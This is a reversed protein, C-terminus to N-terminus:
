NGVRDAYVNLHTALARAEDASLYLDSLRYGDEFVGLHVFKGAPSLDVAYYNEGDSGDDLYVYGTM